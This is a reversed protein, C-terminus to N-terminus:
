AQIRIVVIQLNLLIVLVLLSREKKDEIEKKNKIEKIDKIVIMVIAEADRAIDKKNEKVDKEIRMGKEIIAEVEAEEVNKLKLLLNQLNKNKRKKYKLLHGM